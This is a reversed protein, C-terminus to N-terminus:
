EGKRKEYFLKQVKKIYWFIWEILETDNDNIDIKNKLINYINFIPSGRNQQIIMFLEKSIRKRDKM